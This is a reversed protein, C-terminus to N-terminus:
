KSRWEARSTEEGVAIDSDAYLEDAMGDEKM